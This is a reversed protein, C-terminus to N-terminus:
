YKQATQMVVAITPCSKRHVAILSLPARQDPIHLPIGKECIGVMGTADMYTLEVAGSGFWQVSVPLLPTPCYAASRAIQNLAELSIM